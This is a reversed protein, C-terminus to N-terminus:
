DCNAETWTDVRDSADQVGPDSFGELVAAAEPDTSSAEFMAQFDYDYDPLADLIPAFAEVVTSVDASVEGPAEEVMRAFILRMADLQAAGEEPSGSGEFADEGFAEDGIDMLGCFDAAAVADVDLVGSAGEDDDGADEADEDDPDNRGDDDPSETDDSGEDETDEDNRTGDDVEPVEDENDDDDGGCASLLLAGAVLAATLRAPLATRIRM